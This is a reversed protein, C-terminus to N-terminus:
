RSPPSATRASTRKPSGRTQSLTSGGGSSDCKWIAGDKCFKTNAV